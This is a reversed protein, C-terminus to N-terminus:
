RRQHNWRSAVEARKRDPGPRARRAPKSSTNALRADLPLARQRGGKKVFPFIHPLNTSTLAIRERPNNPATQPRRERHNFLLNECAGVPSRALRLALKEANVIAPSRNQHMSLSCQISARPGLPSWRSLQSALVEECHRNEQHASGEIPEVAGGVYYRRGTACSFWRTSLVSRSARRIQGHTAPAGRRRRAQSRTFAPHLPKRDCSWAAATSALPRGSLKEERGRTSRISSAKGQCYTLAVEIAETTTDILPRKVELHAARLFESSTARRTGSARSSASTSSGPGHRV